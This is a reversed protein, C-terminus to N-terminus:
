VMSGRIFSSQINQYTSENNRSSGEPMQMTTVGTNISNDIAIPQGIGQNALSDRIEELVGLTNDQGGGTAAGIGFITSVRDLVSQNEGLEEIVPVFERRLSRSVVKINKSAEGRDVNAIADFMMATSSAGAELRDGVFALRIIPNLIREIGGGFFRSIGEGVSVAALAGLAAALAFVGGAASWIGASHSSIQIISDFIPQMDVGQLMSGAIALYVMSGAVSQIALAGLFILPSLLAITLISPMMLGMSIAFAGAGAVMAGPSVSSLASSLSEIASSILVLGAAAPIMAWGMVGVAYAGAVVAPSILGILAMTKAVDWIAKISNGLADADISSIIAFPIAVALLSLGAIAMTGAGALVLPAIFSIGALIGAVSLMAGIGKLIGTFPMEAFMNFAVASLLLAGSAVLMAASGILISGSLKSLVVMSGSLAALAGIGAMFGGFSVESFKTFAYAAVVLAASVILIAAAGKLVSKASFKKTSDAVPTMAGSITQGAGKSTKVVGKSFIGTIGSIGTSITNKIKSLGNRIADVPAKIWSVLKNKGLLLKEKISSRAAQQPRAVPGQTGENLSDAFVQGANQEGGGLQGSGFASSLTSSIKRLYGVTEFDKKITLKAEKREQWWQALRTKGEEILMALLPNDAIIAQIEAFMPAFVKGLKGLIGVFRQSSTKSLSSNEKVASKVGELHSILM